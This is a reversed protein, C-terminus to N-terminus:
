STQQFSDMKSELYGLLIDGREIMGTLQHQRDVVPLHILHLTSMIRIIEEASTDQSVCRPDRAMMDLAKVRELDKGQMLANILDFETVIGILKKQDNVIPIAGCGRNIMATALTLGIVDAHFYPVDKEMLDTAKLKGLPTQGKRKKAGKM